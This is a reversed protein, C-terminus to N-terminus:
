LEGGIGDRLPDYTSSRTEKAQAQRRRFVAIGIGVIILIALLLAILWWISSGDPEKTEWKVGFSASDSGLDNQAFIELKSSKLDNKDNLFRLWVFPKVNYNIVQDENDVVLLSDETSAFLRIQPSDTSGVSLSHIPNMVITVNSSNRRYLTIYNPSGQGPQFTSLKIFSGQNLFVQGTGSSTLYQQYITTLNPQPITDNITLEYSHCKETAIVINTFDDYRYGALDYPNCAATLTSELDTLGTVTVLNVSIASDSFTVALNLLRPNTIDVIVFLDLSIGDKEVLEFSIIGVQEDLKLEERGIIQFLDKDTRYIVIRNLTQSTGDERAIMFGILKDAISTKLITGNAFQPLSSQSLLNLPQGKEAMEFVKIKGVSKPSANPVCHLYINKSQYIPLVRNCTWDKETPIEATYDITSKLRDVIQIQQATVLIYKFLTTGIGLIGKQNEVIVPDSIPPIFKISGRTCEDEIECKIGWAM